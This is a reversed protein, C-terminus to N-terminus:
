KMNNYIRTVIDKDLERFAGGVHSRGKLVADAFEEATVNTEPLKTDLGINKIFEELAELPKDSGFVMSGFEDFRGKEENMYIRFWAPFVIALAAGHPIDFLETVAHSIEHCGFDGGPGLVDNHAIASALMMDSRNEYNDPDALTKPLAEVITKMASATLNDLLLSKRNLDFFREMAHCFADFGGMATQGAPLSYTLEPNLFAAKPIVEPNFNMNKEHTEDDTLVFLPNSESSTAPATVVTIVPLTKEGPQGAAIGKASDMVSGGGIAVLVDINNERCVEKAKAIHSKLPNPVIGGFLFVEIGEEKLSATIDNGPGAKFIRDSGYILLAKSGYKKVTQGIEKECGTGFHFETPIQLNFNFM